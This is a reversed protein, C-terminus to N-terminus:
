QNSHDAIGALALVLSQAEFDVMGDVVDAAMVVFCYPAGDLVRAAPMTKRDAEEAVSTKQKVELAIGAVEVMEAMRSVWRDVVSPRNVLQAAVLHAVSLGKSYAM